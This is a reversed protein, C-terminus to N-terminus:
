HVSDLFKVVSCFIERLESLKVIHRYTLGTSHWAMFHDVVKQWGVTPSLLLSYSVVLLVVSQKCHAIPSPMLFVWSIITNNEDKCPTPLHM